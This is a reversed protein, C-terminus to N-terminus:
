RGRYADSHKQHELWNTAYEDALVPTKHIILLNEANHEEAQRTFNFSGTIVTEGDIVMVKNHAIAHQSDIWTPIGARETFDAETYKETLQSKDLIIKVDLGRKHADVLARAIDVNTFSYALVWVSRQAHRLERVVADTCGGKPSFFVEVEKPVIPKRFYQSGAHVGASVLAILVLIITFPSTSRSSRAM